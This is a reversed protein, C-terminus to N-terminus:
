ILVKALSPKIFENDVLASSDPPKPRSTKVYQVLPADMVLLGNDRAYM